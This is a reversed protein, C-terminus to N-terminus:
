QCGRAPRPNKMRTPRLGCAGHSHAGRLHTLALCGLRRPALTSARIPVFRLLLLVTSRNMRLQLLEGSAATGAMQHRGPLPWPMAFCSASEGGLLGQESLFQDPVGGSIHCRWGGGHDPPWHVPRRHNHLVARQFPLRAYEETTVSIGHPNSWLSTFCCPLSFTLACRSCSCLNM